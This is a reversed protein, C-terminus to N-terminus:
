RIFLPEKAPGLEQSVIIRVKVNRPAQRRTQALNSKGFNRLRIGNRSEVKSIAGWRRGGWIRDNGSAEATHM